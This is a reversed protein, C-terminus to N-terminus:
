SAFIYVVLKRLFTLFEKSAREEAFRQFPNTAPADVPELMQEIKKVPLTNCKFLKRISKMKLLGNPQYVELGERFANKQPFVDYWNLIYPASSHKM